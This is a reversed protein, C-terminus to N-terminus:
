QARPRTFIKLNTRGSKHRLRPITDSSVVMAPPKWRDANRVYLPCEVHKVHAIEGRATNEFWDYGSRRLFELIESRLDQLYGYMDPDTSALIAMQPNSLRTRCLELEHKLERCLRLIYQEANDFKVQFIRISKAVLIGDDSQLDGPTASDQSQALM